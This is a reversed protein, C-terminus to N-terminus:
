DVYKYPKLKNVNTSMCSPEFKGLTVLLVLNNFLLYQIIYPGYWKKKVKGVKKMKKKQFGFLM